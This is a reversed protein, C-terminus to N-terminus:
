KVILMMMKQVRQLNSKLETSIITIKDATKNGTLDGIVKATKQIRRKSATKIADTTIKKASDLLKQSYKNSLNKVMNEAFSLFRYGKLYTRNKPKISYRTIENKYLPDANM